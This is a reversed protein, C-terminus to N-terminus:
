VHLYTYAASHPSHPVRRQGRAIFPPTVIFDGDDILGLIRLQELCHMVGHRAAGLELFTINLPKVLVAIYAFSDAIERQSVSVVM